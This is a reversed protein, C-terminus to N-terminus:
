STTTSCRKAFGVLPRAKSERPEPRNECAGFSIENVHADHCGERM